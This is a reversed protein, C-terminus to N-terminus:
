ESIIMPSDDVLREVYQVIQQQQINSLKEVSNFLLYWPKPSNKLYQNECQRVDCIIGNPPIQPDIYIITNDALKAILFVHGKYGGLVAFGPHLLTHIWSAFEDYNNTPKFDFNNGLIYIFIIEIQSKSFGSQGASSIRMLNASKVDLIGFLELANIFCDNPSQFHRGFKTISENTMKFQSLSTCQPFGREEGIGGKYIKAYAPQRHSRIRKHSANKKSHKKHTKKKFRRITTM